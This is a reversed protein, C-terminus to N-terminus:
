SPKPRRRRSTPRIATSACSANSSSASSPRCAKRSVGTSRSTGGCPTPVARPRHHPADRRRAGQRRQRQSGPRRLVGTRGRDPGAGRRPPPGGADGQGARDVARDGAGDRDLPEPVGPDVKELMEAFSRAQVVNKRSRAKIEDNLLKRLLELALNRQPLDRVEALFEDSLISIEPSKMGPTPSSTSSGESTVARSVLQRIASDLDEPRPSARRRTSSWDRGSRRSSVSRTASRWPEEHPVALAFAKCLKIVENMFRNKLSDTPPRRRRM